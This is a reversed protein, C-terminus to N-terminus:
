SAGEKRRYYEKIEEITSKPIKKSRLLEFLEQTKSIIVTETKPKFVMLYGRTLLKLPLSNVILIDLTKLRNVYENQALYEKTENSMNGFADRFDSITCFPQNNVAEIELEVLKKMEDLEIEVGDYYQTFAVNDGFLIHQYYDTQALIKM